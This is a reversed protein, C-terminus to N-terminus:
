PRFGEKGNKKEDIKKMLGSYDKTLANSVADPLDDMSMGMSQATQQAVSQRQGQPTFDEYGMMSALNSRNFGPAEQSTFSVEQETTETASGLTRATENLIDNLMPNDKVFNKKEQVPQVNKIGQKIVKKHDTKPNMAEQIAQKVGKKIEERVVKRILAELVKIQKGM